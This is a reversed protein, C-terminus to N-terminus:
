EVAPAPTGAELTALVEALIKAAIKADVGALMPIIPAKTSIGKKPMTYKVNRQNRLGKLREQLQEKTLGKFDKDLFM